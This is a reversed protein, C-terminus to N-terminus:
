PFQRVRDLLLDLRRETVRQLTIGLDRAVSTPVGRPWSWGHLQNRRHIVLDLQHSDVVSATPVFLGGSRAQPLLRRRRQGVTWQSVGHDDAIRKILGFPWAVPYLEGAEVIALDLGSYIANGSRPAM